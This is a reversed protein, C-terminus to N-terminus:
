ENQSEANIYITLKYYSDPDTGVSTDNDSSFWKWQLYYIQDTNADSMANEIDLEDYSVWTDEDGVVFENDKRLRYKMNISYKNIEKFEINYKIKYDTSNRVIFEYTNSCEPAIKQEMEYVTNSFIDIEKENNWEVKDTNDLVTIKPEDDKKDNNPTPQPKVPTNDTQDPLVDKCTEKECTLEFVDVNGTPYNIDKKDKDGNLKNIMQCNHLLLIIIIVILIIKVIIDAVKNKKEEKNNNNEEM